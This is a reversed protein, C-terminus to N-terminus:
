MDFNGISESINYFIGLFFLYLIVIKRSLMTLLKSGYHSVSINQINCLILIHFYLEIM